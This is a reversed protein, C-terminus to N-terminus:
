MYPIGINELRKTKEGSCTEPLAILAEKCNLYNEEEITTTLCVTELNLEKRMENTVLYREAVKDLNGDLYDAWLHELSELSPCEVIIVVSGEGVSVLNVRYTDIILDTFSKLAQAHGDRSQDNFKLYNQVTQSLIKEVAEEKEKGLNKTSILLKVFLAPFFFYVCISFLNAATSITSITKKM